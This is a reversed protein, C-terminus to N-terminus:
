QDSEETVQELGFGNVTNGDNSEVDNVAYQAGTALVTVYWQGHEFDTQIDNNELIERAADYVQWRIKQTNTESRTKMSVTNTNLRECLLDIDDAEMPEQDGDCAIEIEDGNAKYGERQWYRLAALVTALEKKSLEM